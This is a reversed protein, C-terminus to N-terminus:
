SPIRWFHWFCDKRYGDLQRLTSTTATTLAAQTAFRKYQDDQSEAGASETDMVHIPHELLLASMTQFFQTLAAQRQRDNEIARDAIDRRHNFWYAAAGLMLPVILLDLWDWLTKARQPAESPSVYGNFGSWSQSYLWRIFLVTGAVGLFVFGVAFLWRLWRRMTRSRTVTHLGDM